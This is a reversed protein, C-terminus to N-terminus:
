SIIWVNLLLAYFLYLFLLFFHSPIRQIRQLIQEFECQIEPEEYFIWGDALKWEFKRWWHSIKLINCSFHVKIRIPLGFRLLVGLTQITKNEFMSSDHKHWVRPLTFYIKLGLTQCVLPLKKQAVRERWHQWTFCGSTDLM